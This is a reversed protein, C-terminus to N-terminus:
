YGSYGRNRTSWRPSKFTLRKKGHRNARMIGQCWVTIATSHGNVPGNAISQTGSTLQKCRLSMGLDLNSHLSNFYSQMNLNATRVFSTLVKGPYGGYGYVEDSTGSTGSIMM